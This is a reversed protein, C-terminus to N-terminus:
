VGKHFREKGISCTKYNIPKEFLYEYKLYTILMDDEKNAANNIITITDLSSQAINTIRPFQKILYAIREDVSIPSIPIKALQYDPPIILMIHGPYGVTAARQTILPVIEKAFNRLFLTCEHIFNNGLLQRLEIFYIPLYAIILTDIAQEKCILLTRDFSDILYDRDLFNDIKLNHLLQANNNHKKLFQSPNPTCGLLACQKTTKPIRFSDGEYVHVYTPNSKKHVLSSAIILPVLLLCLFYLKTRNNMSRTREQNHLHSLM